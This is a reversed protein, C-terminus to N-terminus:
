RSWVHRKEKEKKEKDKTDKPKDPKDPAAPKTNDGQIQDGQVPLFGPGGSDRSWVHRGGTEAPMPTGDSPSGTYWYDNYWWPYEYYAAWPAPYAGYWSADGYTADHYFQADTHCDACAKRDGEDSTLDTVEPHRLLTYCGAGSLAAALLLIFIPNRLRM